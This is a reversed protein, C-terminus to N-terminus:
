EQVEVKFDDEFLEPIARVVDSKNDLCKFDELKLNEDMARNWGERVAKRYVEKDVIIIIKM